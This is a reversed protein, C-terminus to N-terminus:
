QNIIETKLKEFIAKRAELVEINTSSNKIKGAMARKAASATKPRDTIEKDIKNLKEEREKKKKQILKDRQDKLYEEREKIKEEDIGKPTKLMNRFMYRDTESKNELKIEPTIQKPKQDGSVKNNGPQKKEKGSDTRKLNESVSKTKKKGNINNNEIKKEELSLNKVMTQEENKFNNEIGVAKFQYELSAKIAAEIQKEFETRLQQEKEFEERSKQMISILIYRETESTNNFIKRVEEEFDEDISLITPLSGAMLELIHITQLQMELNKRKMMSIFVGFDQAAVVPELTIEEELAIPVTKNIADLSSVLDRLSIHLDDCFAEILVDVMTIYEKHIQKVTDNDIDKNDFLISQQEIFTDIPIKWYSSNLFNLFKCVIDRSITNNKAAVAEKEKVRNFM